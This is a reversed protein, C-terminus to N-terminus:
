RMRSFVGAALVVVLTPLIAWAGAPSFMWSLMQQVFVL